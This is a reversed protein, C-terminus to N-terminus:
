ISRGAPNSGADHRTSNPQMDVTSRVGLKKGRRRNATARNDRTAQIQVKGDKVRFNMTHILGCDCCAMKHGRQPKPEFWEGDNIQTYKM